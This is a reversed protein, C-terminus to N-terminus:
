DGQRVQEHDARDHGDENIADRDPRSCGEASQNRPLLGGCHAEGSLERLTGFPANAKGSVQGTPRATTPQRPRPPWRSPVTRTRLDRGICAVSVGSHGARAATITHKKRNCASELPIWSRLASEYIQIALGAPSAGAVGVSAALNAPEVTFSILASSPEKAVAFDYAPGVQRDEGSLLDNSPSTASCTATVHM